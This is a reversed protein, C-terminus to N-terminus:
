YLKEKLLRSLKLLRKSVEAQSIDLNQAIERQKLQLFYRQYFMKLYMEQPENINIQKVLSIINEIIDKRIIQEEIGERPDKIEALDDIILYSMNEASTANIFENVDTTPVIEESNGFSLEISDGREAVSEKASVDEDNLNVTNEEKIQTNEQSANDPREYYLFDLLSIEKIQSYDKSSRVLRGSKRLVDIIASSVVKKLYAELTNTNKITQLILYSKQYTESCFDELLDENGSYKPNAKVIKEILSRQEKLLEM